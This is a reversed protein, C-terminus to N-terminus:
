ESAWPITLTRNSNSLTGGGPASAFRQNADSIVLTADALRVTLQNAAGTPHVDAITLTGEDLAASLTAGSSVEVNGFNIEEVVQGAAVTLRHVFGAGPMAWIAERLALV